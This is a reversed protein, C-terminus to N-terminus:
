FGGGMHSSVLEGSRTDVVIEAITDTVDSFTILFTRTRADDGDTETVNGVHGDIHLREALLRLAARRAVGAMQEHQVPARVPTCAAAAGLLLVGFFLSRVLMTSYLRM